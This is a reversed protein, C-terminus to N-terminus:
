PQNPSPLNVPTINVVQSKGQRDITVSLPQGLKARDLLNRVDEATKIETQEIQRLIDGPKIGAAAAPTGRGVLTVLVGKEQTINYGLNPDQRLEAKVQPNLDVMQIGLFPHSAKGSSFLQEAIRQVTGIPIAFGLGQANARIATNVGIVEGRANLLPGGSNGPNIAADTQIFSVRKDSIGVERSTRGTASIIGATVTNDLGFPNGIAIAWEGPILQDSNGLTVTPLKDTEIKIAAIDTVTDLGVVKGQFSRGDKLKVEVEDAGDVVHANTLVRGDARLIFGSGSGEQVKEEPVGGEGFFQRFPDIEGNLRKLANIRVVAPGVKEVAEAIFNPNGVGPRDSAIAPVTATAAVSPTSVAPPTVPDSPRVGGQCGGITLGLSWLLVGLRPSQTLWHNLLKVMGFIKDDAGCPPRKRVIV